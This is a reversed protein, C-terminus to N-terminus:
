ISPRSMPRSHSAELPLRSAPPVSFRRPARPLWGLSIDYNSNYSPSSQRFETGGFTSSGAGNYGLGLTVDANPLFLQSYAQRVGWRAPGADNLVQRYAPSNAQAQSLAESLTLTARIPVAQTTDQAHLPATAVLAVVLLATIRPM